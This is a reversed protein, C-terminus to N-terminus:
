MAVQRLPILPCSPRDTYVSRDNNGSQLQEAPVPMSVLVPGQTTTWIPTTTAIRAVCNRDTTVYGNTDRLDCVVPIYSMTNGEALQLTATTNSGVNNNNNNQYQVPLYHTNM